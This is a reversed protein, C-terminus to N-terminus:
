RSGETLRTPGIAGGPPHGADVGIYRGRLPDSPDIAPPRRVRVVLAGTDDFFSQFGWLPANLEVHLRYLDDSLQEWEMRHILPDTAGYLLNNTRTEAGYVDVTLGRERGDVRFPLRASTAFRIDVHDSYPAAVVNGVSGGAFSSIPRLRDEPRAVLGGAGDLPRIEASDVWVTLDDTLQVRLEGSRSGTILLQTGQPFFWHYPTGGGPLATGIATGDERSTAVM